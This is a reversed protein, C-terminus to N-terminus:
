VALTRREDTAQRRSTDRSAGLRNLIRDAAVQAGDSRIQRAIRTAMKQHYGNHLLSDMAAALGDVTVHDPEIPKPGLGLRWIRHAWYYQDAIQPMGLQPIGARAANHLTGSGAHHVIGALKPFLVAHPTEAVVSAWDPLHDAGMGTWGRGILLRCGVKDAAEIVKKTLAQPDRVGVSGFGVYLPPAGANLFAETRQDISGHDGGFCYGVYEYPYRWRDGPPGLTPSIGLLTLSRAALYTEIRDISKMGLSQRLRNVNRGFALDVTGNVIRWAVLNAWGPLTQFPQLPPPQTGPIIPAYGVRFHPIGRYEAVSPAMLENVSSVIAQAGQSAAMLVQFQHDLNSAMWALARKAATWKAEFSQMAHYIDEDYLVHTLGMDQASDTLARPVCALVEHGAAALHTGISLIPMVDGRSGRSSVVIKM